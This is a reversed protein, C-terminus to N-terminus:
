STLISVWLVISPWLWWLYNVLLLILLLPASLKGPYNESERRSHLLFTRVLSVLSIITLLFSACFWAVKVSIALNSFTVVQSTLVLIVGLFFLLLLSRMQRLFIKFRLWSDKILIILFAVVWSAVSLILSLTRGQLYFVHGILLGLIAMGWLFSLTTRFRPIVPAIPGDIRMRAFFLRLRSIFNIM